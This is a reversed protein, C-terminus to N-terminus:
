FHILLVQTDLNQKSPESEYKEIYIRITAGVSGTGSLRYVVRSGDDFIFRIGQLVFCCNRQYTETEDNHIKKM